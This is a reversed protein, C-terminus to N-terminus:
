DTIKQELWRWTLIKQIEETYINKVMTNKNPFGRSVQDVFLVPLNKELYKIQLKWKEPRFNQKYDKCGFCYTTGNTKGIEIPKIESQTNKM